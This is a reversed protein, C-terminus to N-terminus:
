LGHTKRLESIRDQNKALWVNLDRIVQSHRTTALRFSDKVYPASKDFVLAKPQHMLNKLFYQIVDRDGYAADSRGRLVHIVVDRLTAHESVIIKEERIADMYAQPTFGRVLAISNIPAGLKEPLVSLGDTYNIIPDSYIIQTESYQNWHPSAPYKFDINGAALNHTLRIVPYAQYRFRHGHDEGFADLVARGFGYIEGGVSGYHPLYEINEVGIVYTEARAPNSVPGMVSVLFAFFMGTAIRVLPM